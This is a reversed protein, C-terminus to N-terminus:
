RNVLPSNLSQLVFFVKVRPVQFKLFDVTTKTLKVARAFEVERVNCVRKDLFGVAQFLCFFSFVLTDCGMVLLYRKGYKPVCM